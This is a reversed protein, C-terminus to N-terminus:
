PKSLLHPTNFPRPHSVNKFNATNSNPTTPTSTCSTPLLPHHHHLSPPLPNQPKLTLNPAFGNPLPTPSSPPYTQTQHPPLPPPPLLSQSDLSSTFSSENDIATSDEHSPPSDENTTPPEPSTQMADLSVTTPQSEGLSIKETSSSAEESLPDVMGWRVREEKDFTEMDAREKAEKDVRSKELTLM